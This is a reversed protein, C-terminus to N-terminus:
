NLVSRLVCLYELLRRVMEDNKQITFYEATNLKQSISSISERLNEPQMRVIERYSGFKKYSIFAEKQKLTMKSKLIENNEVITNIIDITKFGIPSENQLSVYNEAAAATESLAENASARDLSYDKSWYDIGYVFEKDTKFFVKNRKSGLARTKLGTQKKAFNLAERASHFSTGDMKRIDDYIKTSLNGIGIGAYLEVGEMWLLQQFEQVLAYSESPSDTILQWEDGLTISIPTPLIKSYKHYIISIFDNLRNQFKDREKIRRSGVIDLNIVSYTKM